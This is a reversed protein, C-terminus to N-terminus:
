RGPPSPNIRDGTITLDTDATVEAVELREDSLVADVIARSGGVPTSDFDARLWSFTNGGRCSLCRGLGALIGLM